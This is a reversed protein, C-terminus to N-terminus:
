DGKNRVKSLTFLCMALFNTGFLIWCAARMTYHSQGIVPVKEELTAMVTILLIGFLQAISNLLGTITNEDHRSYLISGYQFMIPMLAASSMGYLLSGVYLVPYIQYELSLNIALLSVVTLVFLTLSVTFYHPIRDLFYCAVVSTIIGAILMWFGLWGVQSEDTDLFVPLVIISILTQVAYQVGIFLGYSLSFCQFTFTTLLEKISTILSKATPETFTQNNSRYSPALPMLVIIALLLVSFAISQGLLYYPISDTINEPDVSAPTLLFGVASGFVNSTVGISIALNQENSPFWVSALKPPMGLTFVQCLSAVAQGIFNVVFNEFALYRIWCGLVHLGCSFILAFKLGYGFGSNDAKNYRKYELSLFLQSLYLAPLLFPPYTIMYITSLFNIYYTSELHYYKSFTDASPAYTIWALASSFTVMSFLLLVLWRRKDAKIEVNEIESNIKNLDELELPEEIGKNSLTPTILPSNENKIKKTGVKDKIDLNSSDSVSEVDENELDKRNTRRYSITEEM